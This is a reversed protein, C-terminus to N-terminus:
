KSEEEQEDVSSFGADAFATNTAGMPSAAAAVTMHSMARYSDSVGDPTAAYSMTNGRPINYTAAVHAVESPKGAGLYVFTWRGTEEREKILAALRQAGEVGGYERSSNEAGDTLVVVLAREGARAGKMKEDLQVIADAVADNLATMGRPQWRNAFTDPIDSLTVDEHWREFVTDFATISMRINEANKDSRLDSIYQGAGELAAAYVAMMSGSMDWVFVVNLVSATTEKKTKKKTKTQAMHAEKPRAYM